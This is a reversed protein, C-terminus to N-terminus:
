GAQTPNTVVLPGAATVMQHGAQIHNKPHIAKRKVVPLAAKTNAMVKVQMRNGKLHLHCGGAQHLPKKIAQVNQAKKLPRNTGIPKTPQRVEQHPEKRGTMPSTQGTQHDEPNITGATAQDKLYWLKKNQAKAAHPTL